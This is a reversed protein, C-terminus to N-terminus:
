LARCSVKRVLGKMLYRPFWRRSSRFGNLRRVGRGPKQKDVRSLAPCFAMLVQSSSLLNENEISERKKFGHALWM